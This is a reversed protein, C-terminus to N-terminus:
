DEKFNVSFDIMEIAMDFAIDYIIDKAQEYSMDKTIMDENVEIELYQICNPLGISLEVEHVGILNEYEKDTM